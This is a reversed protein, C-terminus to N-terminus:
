IIIIFLVENLTIGLYCPIKTTVLKKFHEKNLIKKYM